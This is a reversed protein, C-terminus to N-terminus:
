KLRVSLIRDGIQLTGDKDAAGGPIIKTIYIGDSDPIHQNGKGGAISIGLGKEGKNLSVEVVRPVLRETAPKREITLLVRPPSHKLIDVAEDHSINTLSRNM